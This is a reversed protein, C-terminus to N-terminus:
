EEEPEVWLPDFRRLMGHTKHDVVATVLIEEAGYDVNEVAANRYLTNLVGAERNPIHFVVTKKGDHLMEELRSLLLEVGQGTAASIAVTCDHEAGRGPVFAEAVGRDCKNFVYLTPKGAAGLEELLRETVDLQARSEPDSADIVIMLADAYM